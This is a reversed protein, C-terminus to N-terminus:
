GLGMKRDARQHLRGNELGRRGHRGEDRLSQILMDDGGANGRVHTHGMHRGTMLVSRSPACVTNGAYFDTFKMGEAAMQDLRPTEILKQGYCGLDGYGLDDALIFVMNPRDAGRAAVAHSICIGVTITALFRLPFRSMISKERSSFPLSNFERTLEPKGDRTDHPHSFGFYILFPDHDETAERDNLYDLVQKAHWASGTEDTGGRKSSDHRVTFKANAEEYSNGKKCTRMTDYGARNFVAAM